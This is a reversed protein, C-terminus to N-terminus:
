DCSLILNIDTESRKLCSYIGTMSAQVPIIDAWIERNTYQYDTNNSSIVVKKCLPNLLEIAHELLTRGNWIARSKDSGFRSSKGGALAIGTIDRKYM